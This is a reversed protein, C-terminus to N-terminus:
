QNCSLTRGGIADSSCSETCLKNAPCEPCLKCGCGTACGAPAGVCAFESVPVPGGFSTTKRCIETELNCFLPGCAFTGAPAPCSAQASLDLGLEHANCANGYTKGDCGCV